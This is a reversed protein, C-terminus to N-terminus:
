VSIAAQECEYWNDTGFQFVLCQETPTIGVFKSNEPIVAVVWEDIVVAYTPEEKPILGLRQGAQKILETSYELLEFRVSIPAITVVPLPTEIVVPAGENMIPEIDEATVFGPLVLCAIVILALGTWLYRVPTGPKRPVPTKCLCQPCCARYDSEGLYDWSYACHQCVIIM